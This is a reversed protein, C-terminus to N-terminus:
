NASLPRRARTSFYTEKNIKYTKSSNFTKVTISDSSISEITTHHPPFPTPKPKGGAYLSTPAIVNLVIAILSLLLLSPKMFFNCENKEREDIFLINPAQFGLFRRV